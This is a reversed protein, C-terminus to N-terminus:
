SKTVLEIRSRKIEQQLPVKLARLMSLSAYNHRSLADAVVNAKGPHYLIECDYDKVLELLRRKRMKLEKLAALELDHTPYRTEYEKLQRSAYAVVKENPATILKDKLTQFSEECKDTWAFKQQKRTLNTLPTAIKPFGEVFRRYYGALGLFSRIESATKPKTWSKVAEIKTPDVEVGDKSVIHGLFAVKELWFECKKFKAYLQHEKLRRLTLRLHEEHEEMTRSYILIDDIFVVVFKDLYEKFVRNMLDMFTAWPSYSPRIFGKDLLDQLQAKLEKLENPAIRYRARSIPATSSALEIVFEIERDPPLGPLDKPFVEEFECVIHVNEPKLPTERSKDVISALYAQCGACIMRQAKLATVLPLSSKVKIGEFIFAEGSEPTFTVTRKRCDITAGHRSLWDMGLILDYDRMELEILYGSLEKDTIRIPADRVGRSSIMVEGSPLEM